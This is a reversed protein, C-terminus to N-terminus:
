DAIRGPDPTGARAVIVRFQAPIVDLRESVDDGIVHLDAGYGRVTTEPEIIAEVRPQHKPLSGRNAARPRKRRASPGAQAAAKEAEIASIGTEIDELALEFKDPDLKESKRGFM